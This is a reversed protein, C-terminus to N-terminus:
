AIPPARVLYFSASSVVLWRTLKVKSAKSVQSLVLVNVACLLDADLNLSALGACVETHEVVQLHELEHLLDKTQAVLLFALLLLAWFAQPSTRNTHAKGTM